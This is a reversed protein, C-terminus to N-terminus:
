NINSSLNNSHTYVLLIRVKLSVVMPSEYDGKWLCPRHFPPSILGPLQNFISIFFGTDHILYLFQLLRLSEVAYDHLSIAILLNQLM